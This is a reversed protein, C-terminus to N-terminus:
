LFINKSYFVFNTYAVNIVSVISDQKNRESLLQMQHSTEEFFDAEDDNCDEHKYRYSAETNILRRGLHNIASVNQDTEEDSPASDCDSKTGYPELPPVIFIDTQEVSKSNEGDSHELEDM